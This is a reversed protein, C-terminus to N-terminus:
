PARLSTVLNKLEGIESAYPVEGPTTLLVCPGGPRPGRGMWGFPADGPWESSDTCVLCESAMAKLLDAPVGPAILAPVAEHFRIV